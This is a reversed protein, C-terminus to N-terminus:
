REHRHRRDNDRLSARIQAFLQKPVDTSVTADVGGSKGSAYITVAITRPANKIEAIVRYTYSLEGSEKPETTLTVTNNRVLSSVTRLGSRTLAVELVDRLLIANVGTTGTVEDFNITDSHNTAFRTGRTEVTATPEYTTTPERPRLYETANTPVSPSLYAGCSMYPNSADHWSVCRCGTNSTLILGALLLYTGNMDRVDTVNRKPFTIGDIFSACDLESRLGTLPLFGTFRVVNAPIQRVM